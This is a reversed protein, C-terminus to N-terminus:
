NFYILYGIILVLVLYTSTWGKTIPFYRSFLKFKNFYKQFGAYSIINAILSDLLLIWFLIQLITM